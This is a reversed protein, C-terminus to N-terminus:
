AYRLWADHLPGMGERAESTFLVVFEELCGAVPRPCELEPASGAWVRGSRDVALYAYDGRTSLAFPLHASWFAEVEATWADDGVASALSVQTELFNWGDGGHDLFDESGLFWAQGDQAVCKRVQQAFALIPPFELVHGSLPATPPDVHISWGHREFVEILDILSPARM